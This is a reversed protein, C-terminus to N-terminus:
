LVVVRTGKSVRRYLDIADANMMRICGSSVAKGITDPENTGHIRFLTDKGGKFLYLARAGLPNELSGDMHTPLDPRRLLMEKPPTWGPWFAKRGIEAVGKWEFGQRGVGVGYEIAQGDKLSLYLKRTRTNITVTGPPQGTTDDVFNRTTATPDIDADLDVPTSYAPDADPPLAAVRVKRQPNARPPLTARPEADPVYEQDLTEGPAAGFDREDKPPEVDPAGAGYSEPPGSYSPETARSYDLYHAYQQGTSCGGLLLAAGGILCALRSKPRELM